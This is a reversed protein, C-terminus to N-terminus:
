KEKDQSKNKNNKKESSKEHKEHEVEDDRNKSSLFTIKEAVIKTSKRTQGDKEYLDTEVRGKIGLLDGKKCYEATNEAVGSWLVCDVFDTDYEGKSNKYSRPVAVTINSVKKGSETEQIKPDEVLRGVIVTQNLMIDVERM